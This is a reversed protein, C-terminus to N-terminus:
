ADLPVAPHRDGGRVRRRRVVTTAAFAVSWTVAAWGGLVGFSGAHGPCGLPEPGETTCRQSM